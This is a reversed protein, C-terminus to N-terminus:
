DVTGLSLEIAGFRGAGVNIGVFFHRQQFNRGDRPAFKLIFHRSETEVQRVALFVKTVVLTLFQTLPHDRNLTGGRLFWFVGLFGPPPCKNDLQQMIDFKTRFLGFPRSKVAELRTLKADSRSFHGTTFTYRKVPVM